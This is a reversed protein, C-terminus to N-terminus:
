YYIIVTPYQVQKTSESVLELMKDVASRLRGCPELVLEERELDLEGEPGSFVSECLRQSLELGEDTVSSFM